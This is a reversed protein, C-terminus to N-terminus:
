SHNAEYKEGNSGTVIKEETYTKLKGTDIPFKGWHKIRLNISFLLRMGCSCRLAKAPPISGAPFDGAPNVRGGFARSGAAM